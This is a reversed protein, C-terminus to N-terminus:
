RVMGPQGPISSTNIPAQGQTPITMPLAPNISPGSLPAPMPGSGIVSAQGPASSGSTQVDSRAVRMVSSPQSTLVMGGLTVSTSSVKDVIQGFAMQGQKVVVSDGGQEIIAYREGNQMLTGALLPMTPMVTVPKPKAMKVPKPTPVAQADATVLLPNTGIQPTLPPKGISALPAGPMISENTSREATLRKQKETAIAARIKEVEYDHTLTEIDAAKGTMPNVESKAEVAPKDTTASSNAVAVKLKDPASQEPSSNAATSSAAPSAKSSTATTVAVVTQSSPVASPAQSTQIFAPNAAIPVPIAGLTQAAVSGTGMASIALLLLTTPKYIM